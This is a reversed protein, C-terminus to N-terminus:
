PRPPRPPATPLVRPAPSPAAARGAQRVARVAQLHEPYTRSFVHKGDPQAVLYLFRTEAPYLAAELSAAAPQGIPGPPLGDVLYTNYPSRVQYDREFLRRRRGLAYIVTPDAQLRMGRRLRNHYVSSVYKRDPPYLVEGEIISALTVIQHRTMQLSDLRATWPRRWQREFETVMMTVLEPATVGHRVLYTSPYLYGDLLPRPAGARRALASDSAAAIFERPAVGLQLEVAEALEPLMLGEVIGLRRLAEHGSTLVGLADLVPMHPVFEYVGAKIEDSKGLARALFRFSTASGIVGRAHLSEAAATLTAGPPITVQIRPGNPGGTWCALALSASGALATRSM